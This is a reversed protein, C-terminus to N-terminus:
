VINAIGELVQKNNAAKFNHKIIIKYIQNAQGVIQAM